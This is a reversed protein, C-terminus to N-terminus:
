VHVHANLINNTYVSIVLFFTKACSVNVTAQEAWHQGALWSTDSDPHLM